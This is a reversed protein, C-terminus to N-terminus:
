PRLRTVSATRVCAHFWVLVLRLRAKAAAAHAADEAKKNAAAKSAAVGAGSLLDTASSVLGGTRNHVHEIKAEKKARKQADAHARLKADRVRQM